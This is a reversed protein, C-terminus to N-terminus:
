PKLAKRLEATDPFYSSRYLEMRELPTRGFKDKAHVDAQHALLLLVAEKPFFIVADALLTENQDEGRAELDAGNEMMAAAVALRGDKLAQYLYERQEGAALTRTLQGVTKVDGRQIAWGMRGGNVEFGAIAVPVLVLVAWPKRKLWRLSEGPYAVFQSFAACAGFFASMLIVETWETPVEVTSGHSGVGLHWGFCYNLVGCILTLVTILGLAAAIQSFIAVRM